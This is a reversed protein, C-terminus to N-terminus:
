AAVVEIPLGPYARIAARRATSRRTYAQSVGTNEGNGAIVRYYFARRQIRLRAVRGRTIPKGEFLEVHRGGAM